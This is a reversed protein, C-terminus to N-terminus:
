YKPKLFRDLLIPDLVKRLLNVTFGIFYGTIVGSVMLVPLYSFVSVTEILISAVFIQGLNHAVAGLISIGQVSFYKKFQCYFLGMILISLLAGAGSYFFSYLRGSLFAAMFTRLVVVLLASKFGFYILAILSIINALGLKVGPAIYPLPMIGEVIQLVLALAVMMGIFTVRAYKSM